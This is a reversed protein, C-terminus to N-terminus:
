WNHSRKWHADYEERQNHCSSTNGETQLYDIYVLPPHMVVLMIAVSEKTPMASIKDDGNDLILFVTFHSGNWFWEDFSNKM